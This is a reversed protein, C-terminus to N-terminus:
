EICNFYVRNEPWDVLIHVQKFMNGIIPRGNTALHDGFGQGCLMLKMLNETTNDNEVAHIVNV